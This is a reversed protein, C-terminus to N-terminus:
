DEARSMLVVTEVHRSVGNQIDLMHGLQENSKPAQGFQEVKTVIVWAKVWVITEYGEISPNVM